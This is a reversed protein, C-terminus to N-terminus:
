YRSQAKLEDQYGLSVFEQILKKAVDKNITRPDDNRYAINRTNLEDRLITGHAAAMDVLFKVQKSSAQDAKLASNYLSDLAQMQETTSVIGSLLEYAQDKDM